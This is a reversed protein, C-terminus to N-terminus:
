GGGEQQLPSCKSCCQALVRYMSMCVGCSDSYLAQEPEEIACIVAKAGGWDSAQAM